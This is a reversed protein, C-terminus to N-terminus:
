FGSIRNFRNSNFGGMTGNRAAARNMLVISTVPIAVAATTGILKGAAGLAARLKSPKSAYASYTPAGPNTSTETYNNYNGSNNNGYDARGYEQSPNGYGSQSQMGQPNGYLSRSQELAQEQMEYPSLAREKKKATHSKYNQELEGNLPEGQNEAQALVAGNFSLSALCILAALAAARNTM